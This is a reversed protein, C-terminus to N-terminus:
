RVKVKLRGVSDKGDSWYNIYKKNRGATGKLLLQSESV